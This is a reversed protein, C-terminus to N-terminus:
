DQRSNVLLVVKMRLNKKWNRGGTCTLHTLGNLFGKMNKKTKLNMQFYRSLKNRFIIYLFGNIDLIKMLAVRGKAKKDKRQVKPSMKTGFSKAAHTM